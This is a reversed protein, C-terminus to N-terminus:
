IRKGSIFRGPNPLKIAAAFSEFDAKGADRFNYPTPNLLEGYPQPPAGPTAFNEENYILYRLSTEYFFFYHQDKVIDLGGKSNSLGLSLRDKKSRVPGYTVNFGVENALAEFTARSARSWTPIIGLVTTLWSRAAQETQQRLNSDLISKYSSVDFDVAQLSVDFEITM